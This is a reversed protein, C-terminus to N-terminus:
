GQGAQKPPSIKKGHTPAAVEEKVDLFVLERKRLNRLQQVGRPQGDQAKRLVQGLLRHLGVPPQRGAILPHHIQRFPLGNLCQEGGSELVHVHDPASRLHSLDYPRDGLARVGYWEDVM